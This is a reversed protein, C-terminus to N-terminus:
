DRPSPSTYLLCPYTFAFGTTDIFVAAPAQLLAECALVVAGLSQGVLTFRPWAEATILFRWRLRVFEVSPAIDIGFREKTRMLIAEPAESDGTYILLRQDPTAQQLSRIYQWLVREGGGGSNCFPHFFGVTFPGAQLRRSRARLWSVLLFSCGVLLLPLLGGALLLASSLLM